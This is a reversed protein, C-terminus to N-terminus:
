VRASSRRGLNIFGLLGLLGIILLLGAPAEPAPNPSSAVTLTYTVQTTGDQATVVLTDGTVVPDSIGSDDWTQDAQNKTLNVEFSTKSTGYGVNTITGAAGTNSVAYTSSTVTADTSVITIEETGTIGSGDNAAAIVTVTGVGTGTVLGSSDIAASGTGDSVSWTVSSDTADVPLVSANMQLTAGEAVSNAGGEGTVTISTVKIVQWALIPYGNNIGATDAVYATGAGNVATLFASTKMDDSTVEACNTCTGWSSDTPQTVSTNTNLWFANNIIVASSYDASAWMFKAYGSMFNSFGATSYCNEMKACACDYSPSNTNIGTMGGMYIKASTGSGTLNGRNYCNTIYGCNYGVIGGIYTKSGSASTVSGTNCCQDVVIGGNDNTPTHYHCYVAGVIGGMRTSGTVAGSNSCYQIYNTDPRAGSYIREAVGAIGGVHASKSATVTIASHCNYLSGYLYGVIGGVDSVSYASLSIAGAANLNEVTGGNIYGFLGYGGYSNTGSTISLGSIQHNDGDYVGAFYKGNPVGSSLACAGGIPTWAFGALDLDEGQKFYYGSFNTGGNVADALGKFQAATSIIYPDSPTGAGSWSTDSSSGDWASAAAVGTSFFGMFSVLLTLCVIISIIKRKM